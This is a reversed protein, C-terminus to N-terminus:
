RADTPSPTLDRRAVWDSRLGAGGGTVEGILSRFSALREEKSEDILAATQRYHELEHAPFAADYERGPELVSRSVTVRDPSPHGSGGTAAAIDEEHEISLIGVGDRTPASAVPGGLNVACVANLEPDAALKAAVVGGGSYGVAILPDGPRVGADHMALRVAQELAGSEAGTLRLADLATDDAIGHTNSTMDAPQRGAELDFTVTGGVYVIWREDDPGGYREIRIQPAIDEGPPVDDGTPIRDALEGVGTPPAVVEPHRASAEAPHGPSPGSTARPVPTAVREVRVPGDVLVRSGAVGLMGMAGLILSASEPAGTAAAAWPPLSVHLAGAAVEDAHDATLRVLRVFGPDSLLDKHDALWAELPTAGRGFARWAAAGGAALLGGGALVPASFGLWPAGVFAALHWLGDVFRETAGYREAAELLSARMRRAHDRAQELHVGALRLAGAPAVADRRLLSDDLGLPDLGRHIVGARAVWEEIVAVCAGLRAADVFLEDVAVATSGGGSVILLDGHDGPRGTDSM